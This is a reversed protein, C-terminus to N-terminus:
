QELSGTRGEQGVDLCMTSDTGANRKPLLLALSVVSMEEDSARTM